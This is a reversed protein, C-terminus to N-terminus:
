ISPHSFLRSHISRQFPRVSGWCDSSIFIGSAIIPERAIWRSIMGSGIDADRAFLSPEPRLANPIAVAASRTRARNPAYCRFVTGRAMLHGHVGCGWRGRNRVVGIHPAEFELRVAVEGKGLAAWLAAAGTLAAGRTFLQRRSIRGVASGLPDRSPIGPVRLPSRNSRNEPTLTSM